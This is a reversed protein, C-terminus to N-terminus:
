PVQDAPSTREVIKIEIQGSRRCSPCRIIGTTIAKLDMDQLPITYRCHPCQHCMSITHEEVENPMKPVPPGSAICLPFDSNEVLAGHLHSKTQYARKLTWSSEYVAM